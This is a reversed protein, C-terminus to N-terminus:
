KKGKSNRSNKRYHSIQLIMDTVATKASVNSDLRKSAECIKEHIVFLKALSAERSLELAEERSAYFTLDKASTRKLAILDRVANDTMILVDKADASNKIISPYATKIMSTAKKTCFQYVLQKAVDRKRVSDSDENDALVEEAKGLAGASLSVAAVFREPYSMSIIKGKTTKKLYEAVAESTFVETRIIQTRSRVTELLKSSDETLLLFTVFSPPEELSLLLSNQAAPTMREANEIIYTRMDSDNPTVYLGSKLDRIADVGISTKDGSNIYVVDGSIEKSIKKCNDCEGCPLPHLESFRNECSLAAAILKAVTRKGSGKAGEVIYAHSNTGAAIDKGIHEKITANGIFQPFIERM